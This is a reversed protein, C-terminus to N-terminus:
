WLWPSSCLGTVYGFIAYDYWLKPRWYGVVRRLHLVMVYEPRANSLIGLLDPATKYAVLWPVIVWAILAQSLWYSEWAWRMIKRLPAYFSGAGLGGLGHLFVGLFPNPM